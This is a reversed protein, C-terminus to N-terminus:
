VWNQSMGAVLLIDELKVQRGDEAAFLQAMKVVNKIQRGNMVMGALREVGEGDLGVRGLFGRWVRGRAEADLEEYGVRLHVRSRFAEDIEEVRNTTLVLIGRYYELQRLFISVVANRALDTASRKAMFVDAEDLLLVAKWTQALRLVTQLRSDIVDPDAGLEGSSLVYLPRQVTEAVAEATLTKGVGPPGSLLLILGLGKGIIFDDFQPTSTQTQTQSIHSKVLTRILHKSPHPLVLSDWITPNWTIPTTHSISFAGWLKSSLSFGYIVAPMCILEDDTPQRTPIPLLRHIWPVFHNNPEIEKFAAPDIVIRGQCNFKEKSTVGTLPSKTEHLAAGRYEHFRQEHLQMRRRGREILTQRVNAQDPHFRLPYAKLDVIPQEGVFLPIELTNSYTWGTKQGNSDVQRGNICFVIAGDPKKIVSTRAARYVCPQNLADVTYVLENPPVVAWLTEFTIRGSALLSKINEEENSFDEKIVRLAAEIEFVLDDDKKEEAREAELRIRLQPACHYLMQPTIVPPKENLRLDEAGELIAKLVDRLGQARVEILIEALEGRSNFVQRVVLAYKSSIQWAAHKVTKTYVRGGGKTRHQDIRVIAKREKKKPDPTKEEGKGSSAEATSKNEGAATPESIANDQQVNPNQECDSDREDTTADSDPSAADAEEGAKAVAETAGERLVAVRANWPETGGAM